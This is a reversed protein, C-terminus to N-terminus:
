LLSNRTQGLYQIAEPSRPWKGCKSMMGGTITRPLVVLGPQLLPNICVLNWVRGPTFLDQFGFDLRILQDSEKNSYRCSNHVETTKGTKLTLSFMSVYDSSPVKYVVKMSKGSVDMFLYPMCFTGKPTYYCEPGGGKVVVLSSTSFSKELDVTLVM